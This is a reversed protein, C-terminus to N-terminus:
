GFLEYLVDSIQNIRWRMDVSLKGIVIRDEAVKM